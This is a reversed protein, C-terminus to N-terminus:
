AYFMVFIFFWTNLVSYTKGHLNFYCYKSPKAQWLIHVGKNVQVYMTCRCTLKKQVYNIANDKVEEFSLRLYLKKILSKRWVPFWVASVIGTYLNKQWSFHFLNRLFLKPRRSIFWSDMKLANQDIPWQKQNQVFKGFWVMCIDKKM